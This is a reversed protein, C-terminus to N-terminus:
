WEASPDLRFVEGMENVLPELYNTHIGKRGGFVPEWTSEKPLSLGAKEIVPRISKLWQEKLANEGIFVGSDILEKEYESEEFMGLAFNWAHNVATQMRAHSIKNGNGLKTMWIDAHFVHYKLEGKIKIAVKSLPAFSSAALSEFRLQDAHDFLFHRVTSFDYDDNPLEVFRCNHLATAKRNFALTDPDKEGLDHLLQYLAQSQGLKDQAMSSFAIDEELIPGLGTWESNRHGFILLDDAMKYLLEKIADNNMSQFSQM